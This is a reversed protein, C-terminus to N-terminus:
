PNGDFHAGGKDLLTDPLTPSSGQNMKWGHFERTAEQIRGKATRTIAITFSDPALTSTGAKHPKYDIVFADAAAPSSGAKWGVTVNSRNRSTASFSAGAAVAASQAVLSTHGSDAYFSYVWAGASGSVLGYLKGGDSNDANLGTIATINSVAAVDTGDGDDGTLTYGPRLSISLPIDPDDWTKDVRLKNAGTKAGIGDSPTFTGTFEIEDYEPGEKTCVFQILGPEFNPGPTGLTAASSGVNTSGYSAAAAAITNVAVKQVTTNAAHNQRMREFAGDVSVTIAGEDSTTTKSVFGAGAQWVRSLLARTGGGENLGKLRTILGQLASAAAANFAAHEAKIQADELQTGDCVQADMDAWSPYVQISYTPDGIAAAAACLTGSGTMGSSNQEVLTFNAGDAIDLAQCVKASLASDNFIEIDWNGGNATLQIWLRGDEAVNREVEGFKAGTIVWNTIQRVGTTTYGGDQRVYNDSVTYRKLVDLLEMAKRDAQLFRDEVATAITQSIALNPM